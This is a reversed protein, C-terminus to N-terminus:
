IQSLSQLTTRMHRAESLIAEIGKRDQEGLNPAEELLSAYGLIVTLPNNLQQTVNGALQGLGAFRESDMLKELMRTQSRVSQLRGALMEIPVLDDPLLPEEPKRLGSLLLAGETATRGLMPTALAN